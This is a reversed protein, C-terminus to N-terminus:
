QSLVANSQCNIGQFETRESNINWRIDFVVKNYFTHNVASRFVRADVTRARDSGFEAM